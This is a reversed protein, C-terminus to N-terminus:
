SIMLSVPYTEKYLSQTKKVIYGGDNVTMRLSFNLCFLHCKKLSMFRLKTM